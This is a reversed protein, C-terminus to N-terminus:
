AIPVVFMDSYHGVCWTSGISLMSINQWCSDIYDLAVALYYYENSFGAVRSESGLSRTKYSDCDAAGWGSSGGGM